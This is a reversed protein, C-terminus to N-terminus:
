GVQNDMTLGLAKKASVMGSRVAGDMYGGSVPSVETGSFILRDSMYMEQLLPHGYQPSRDISTISECSTNKDQSWDKEEYALCENIEPGLYKSLYALIRQKREAATFDRLSENVFGMLAFHQEERDSHDYLEVVPGVQGIITGSLQHDRWFPRKFTMGLKIANSMWTHTNNMVDVLASPLAPVFKVRTALRPPITVIVKQTKYQCSNTTVLIGDPQEDIATVMSSLRINSQVPKALAQIMALSGAVVRSAPTSDPQNDFYHAPAMTNYVLLSQGKSYQPFRAMQLQGILDLVYEHHEQFWVAGLDIHNKTHIRGGLRDRSELVLFDTEGAKHLQYASTLGSLGAGVIVHKTSIVEMEKM